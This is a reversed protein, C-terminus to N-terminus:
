AKERSTKAVHNQETNESRTTAAALHIVYCRIETLMRSAIREESVDPSVRRLPHVSWLVRGLRHLDQLLVEDPVQLRLALWAEHKAERRCERPTVQKKNTTAETSVEGTTSWSSRFCARTKVAWMKRQQKKEM